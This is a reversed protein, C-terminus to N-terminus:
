NRIRDMLMWDLKGGLRLKELWSLIACAPFYLDPLHFFFLVVMKDPSTLSNGFTELGVASGAAALIFGIRGSFNGRNAM